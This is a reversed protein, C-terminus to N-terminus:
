VETPIDFGGVKAILAVRSKMSALSVETNKPLATVKFGLVLDFGEKVFYPVSANASVAADQAAITVTGGSITVAQDPIAISGSITSNAGTSDKIVLKSLDLNFGKLTGKAGELNATSEKVDADGDKTSDGATSGIVGYATSNADLAINDFLSDLLSIESYSQKAQDFLMAIPKLTAGEMLVDAERVKAVVSRLEHQSPVVYMLIHDGVELNAKKLESRQYHEDAPALPYGLTFEGTAYEYAIRRAHPETFQKSGDSNPFLPNPTGGIFLKADM